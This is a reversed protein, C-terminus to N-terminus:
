DILCADEVGKIFERESVSSVRETFDRLMSYESKSMHFVCETLEPNVVFVDDGFSPLGGGTKCRYNQTVFWGIIEKKRLKDKSIQVYLNHACSRLQMQINDIKRKTANRKDISEQKFQREYDSIPCGYLTDAYFADHNYNYKYERKVDKLEELLKGISDVRSVVGPDVCPSFFATDVKTKIPEYSDFDYLMGKLEQSVLDQIKEERNKCSVLLIAVLLIYVRYM